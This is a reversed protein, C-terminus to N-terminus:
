VKISVKKHTMRRSHLYPLIITTPWQAPTPLTDYFVPVPKFHTLSSNIFTTYRISVGQSDIISPKYQFDKNKYKQQRHKLVLLHCSRPLKRSRTSLSHYFLIQCAIWHPAVSIVDTLNVDLSANYLWLTPSFFAFFPSFFFNLTGLNKLFQASAVM